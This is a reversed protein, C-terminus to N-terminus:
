NKRELAFEVVAQIRAVSQFIKSIDEQIKAIETGTPMGALAQKILSIDNMVKHFETRGSDLQKDIEKLREDTASKYEGCDYYYAQLKEDFIQIGCNQRRKECEAMLMYIGRETRGTSIWDWIIKCFLIIIGGIVGSAFLENVTKEM